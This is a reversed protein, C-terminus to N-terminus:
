GLLKEAVFMEVKAMFTYRNLSNGKGPGGPLTPTAVGGKKRHRLPLYYGYGAAFPFEM